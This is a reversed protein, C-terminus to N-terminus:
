KNNIFDYRKNGGIVEVKGIGIGVIKENFDQNQFDNRVKRRAHERAAGKNGAEVKYFWKHITGGEVEINTEIKYKM